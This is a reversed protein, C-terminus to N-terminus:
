EFGRGIYRSVTRCPFTALANTICILTLMLAVGQSIQRRFRNYSVNFFQLLPVDKSGQPLSGFHYCQLEQTNSSYLMHIDYCQHIQQAINKLYTMM